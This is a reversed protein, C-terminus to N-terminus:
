EVGKNKAPTKADRTMNEIIFALICGHGTVACADGDYGQDHERHPIGPCHLAVV